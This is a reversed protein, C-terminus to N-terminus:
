YGAMGDAMASTSRSAQVTAAALAGANRRAFQQFSQADMAYINNVTVPAAAASGPLSTEGGTAGASGGIIGSIIPALGAAVQAAAIEALARQVVSILTMAFDEASRLQGSFFREFGDALATQINRAASKWVETVFAAM